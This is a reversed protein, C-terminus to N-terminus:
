RGTVVSRRQKADRAPAGDHQGIDVARGKRMGHVHMTMMEPHEVAATIALLRIPEIGHQDVDFGGFPSGENGVIGALPHHMAMYDLM